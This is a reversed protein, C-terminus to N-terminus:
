PRIPGPARGKPQLGARKTEAGPRRPVIRNCLEKRASRISPLPNGCHGCSEARPRPIPKKTAAVIEAEVPVPEPANDAELLIKAPRDQPAPEPAAIPAPTPAAKSALWQTIGTPDFDPRTTFTM